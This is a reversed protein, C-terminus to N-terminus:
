YEINRSLEEYRDGGLLDMLVVNDFIRGKVKQHERIRAIEKKTFGTYLLEMDEAKNININREARPTEVVFKGKLKEYTKKGIGSIRMLEQLEEFGGTIERYEVIKKGHSMSVKVSLMEELTARNIDLLAGKKKYTHKEMVVVYGKEPKKTGRKFSRWLREGGFIVLIITLVLIFKKNESM